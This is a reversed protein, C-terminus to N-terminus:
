IELNPAGKQGGKIAKCLPKTLTFNPIWIQCFGAMKLFERIHRKSTPTPISCVAQKRKADLNQQGQSIHFGL